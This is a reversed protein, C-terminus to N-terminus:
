FSKAVPAPTAGRPQLNLRDWANRAHTSAERAGYRVTYGDRTSQVDCTRVDARGSPAGAVLYFGLKVIVIATNM